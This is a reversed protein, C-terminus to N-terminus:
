ETSGNSEDIDEEFPNHRESIMEYAEYLAGNGMGAYFRELNRASALESAASQAILDDPHAEIHKLCAKYVSKRM